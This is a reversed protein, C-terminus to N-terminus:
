RRWKINWLIGIPIEVCMTSLRLGVCNCIGILLLGVQNNKVANGVKVQPEESLLIQTILCVNHVRFNDEEGSSEEECCWCRWYNGFNRCRWLCYLCFHLYLCVCWWIHHRRCVVNREGSFGVAGIMWIGFFCRFLRFISFVVMKVKWPDYCGFATIPQDYQTFYNDYEQMDAEKNVAKHVNEM